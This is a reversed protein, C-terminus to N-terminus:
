YNCKRTTFYNQLDNRASTDHKKNKFNKIAM